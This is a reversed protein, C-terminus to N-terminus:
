DFFEIQVDFQGTCKYQVNLIHSHSHGIWIGDVNITKFHLAKYKNLKADANNNYDDIDACYNELQLM